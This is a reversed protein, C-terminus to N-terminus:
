ALRQVLKYGATGARFPLAMMVPLVAYAAVLATLNARAPNRARQNVTAIGIMGTLILLIVGSYFFARATDHDRLIVAHVAPLWMSMATIAMLLVLLPLESLRRWM